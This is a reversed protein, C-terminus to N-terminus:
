SEAYSPEPVVQRGFGSHWSICVLLVLRNCAATGAAHFPSHTKPIIHM